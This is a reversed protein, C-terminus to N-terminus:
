LLDNWLLEFEESFRKIIDPNNTYMLSEFNNCFATHTFNLSGFVLKALKPNKEDILCFKHHMLEDVCGPTKCAIGNQIWTDLKSSKHVRLGEDTIIRIKIGRRHAEILAETIEESTFMYVCCSICITASSIFKIMRRLQTTGCSDGCETNKIIHGRCKFQKMSIFVLEHYYNNHETKLKNRKKEIQRKLIEQIIIPSVTFSVFIFLKTYSNLM